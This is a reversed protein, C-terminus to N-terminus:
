AGMDTNTSMRCLCKETTPSRSKTIVNTPLEVAVQKAFPCPPNVGEIGAEM